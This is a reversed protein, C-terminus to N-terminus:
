KRIFTNFLEADKRLPVIKSYVLPFAKIEQIYRCTLGAAIYIQPNARTMYFM